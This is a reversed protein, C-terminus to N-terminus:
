QDQDPHLYSLHPKTEKAAYTIRGLLTHLQTLLSDEGIMTSLTRRNHHLSKTAQSNGSTQM